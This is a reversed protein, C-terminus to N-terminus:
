RIAWKESFNTGVLILYISCVIEFLLGDVKVWEVWVPTLLYLDDSLFPDRYTSLGYGLIRFNIGVLDM